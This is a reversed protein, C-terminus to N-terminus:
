LWILRDGSPTPTDDVPDFCITVSTVADRAQEPAYWQWAPLSRAPMATSRLVVLNNIAMGALSLAARQRHQATARWRRCQHLVEEFDIFERMYLIVIAAMAQFSQLSQKWYKPQCGVQSAQVWRDPSAIATAMMPIMESDFRAMSLGDCATNALVAYSENLQEILFFGRSYSWSIFSVLRELGPGQRLAHTSAPRRWEVRERCSEPRSWCVPCWVTRVPAVAGWIPQMMAEATGGSTARVSIDAFTCTQGQVVYPRLQSRHHKRTRAFAHRSPPTM